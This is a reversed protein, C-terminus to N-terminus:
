ENNLEDKQTLVVALSTDSAFTYLLFDKNFNPNYLAPTEAIAQKIRVFADNEKKGFTYVVDEDIM